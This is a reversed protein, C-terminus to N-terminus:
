KYQALVDHYAADREMVAKAFPCMPLVKMNHERAFNIAAVVLKRGIGKGEYKEGVETHEIVMKNQDRIKYVLETVSEDPEDIFFKGGKDNHTHQIEM